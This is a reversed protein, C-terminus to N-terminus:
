NVRIIGRSDIFYMEVKLKPFRRRVAARAKRLEGVHFNFERETDGDFRKIGGYAGCDHHTFLMVRRAGHLRISKQLERLIFDRDGRKEPSALVKAGGAVSEPDLDKLRQKKIFHKFTKWFRNDFCRIVFTDALYHRPDVKELYAYVRKMRNSACKGDGRDRSRVPNM